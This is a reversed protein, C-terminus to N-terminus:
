LIDNIWKERLKNNKEAHNLQELADLLGKKIMQWFSEDWKINYERQSGEYTEILKAKHVKLMKM